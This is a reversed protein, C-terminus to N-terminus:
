GRHAEAAGENAKQDGIVGRANSILAELTDLARIADARQPKPRDLAAYFANLAKHVGAAFFLILDSLRLAEYVRGVYSADISSALPEAIETSRCSFAWRIEPMDGATLIRLRAPDVTEDGEIVITLRNSM